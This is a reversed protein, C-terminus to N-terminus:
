GGLGLGWVGCGFGRVGLGLGWVREAPVLEGRRLWTRRLLLFLGRTRKLGKQHTWASMYRTTPRSTNVLQTWKLRNPTDIVVHRTKNSAPVLEGRRLWARRLLLHLGRESGQGAKVGGLDTIQPIVHGCKCWMRGKLQNRSPLQSKIFPDYDETHYLLLHLCREGAWIRGVRVAIGFRSM